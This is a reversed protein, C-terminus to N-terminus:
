LEKAVNLFFILGLKHYCNTWIENWSTESWIGDRFHGILFDFWYCRSRSFADGLQSIFFMFLLISNQLVFLVAMGESLWVGSSRRSHSFLGRILSALPVSAVSVHPREFLFLRRAAFGSARVRPCNRADDTRGDANKRYDASATFLSIICHWPAVSFRVLLM